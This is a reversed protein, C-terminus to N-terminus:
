WRMVGLPTPTPKVNPAPQASNTTGVGRTGIDVAPQSRPFPGANVPALPVNKSPAPEEATAADPAQGSTSALSPNTGAVRASNPPPPPPPVDYVFFQSVGADVELSSAAGLAATLIAGVVALVVLRRIM